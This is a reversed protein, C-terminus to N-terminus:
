FSAINLTHLSSQFSLFNYLKRNAYHNTKDSLVVHAKKLFDALEM